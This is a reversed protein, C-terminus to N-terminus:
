GEVLLWGNILDATDVETEDEGWEVAAVLDKSAFVDDTEWCTGRVTWTRERREVTQGVGVRRRTVTIRLTEPLFGVHQLDGTDLMALLAERLDPHPDEALRIPSASPNIKAHRFQTAPAGTPWWLRGAIWGRVTVSETVFQRHM